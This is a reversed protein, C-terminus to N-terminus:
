VNKFIKKITRVVDIAHKPNLNSSKKQKINNIKMINKIENEFESSRTKRFKKIIRIKNKYIKRIIDKNNEYNCIWEYETDACTIIVKKEAPFTFLDTLYSFYIGKKFGALSSFVDYKKKESKNFIINSNLKINNLDIKLKKLILLFIHLGHSHEQLAGGGVLYNGLYSDFQNKMWSHAKLIGSWGECWKVEIKTIKKKSIINNYFYNFSPSISHNYGCLIIEKNIKNEFNNLNKNKFNTIPKEILIRKYSINKKCLEYIDIHSKPPTGIIVLDFKKNQNKIFKYDIQKIEKDWKGYRSPYIKEKMRILAKNDIDTIYVDYGIKRCAHAMHNGISGSGFILIKKM